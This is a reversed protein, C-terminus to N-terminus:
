VSWEAAGGSGVCKQMAATSQKDPSSNPLRQPAFILAAFAIPGLM